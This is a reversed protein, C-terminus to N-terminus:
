PFCSFWAWVSRGTIIRKSTYMDDDHFAMVGRLLNNHIKIQPLCSQHALPIFIFDFGGFGCCVDWFHRHRSQLERDEHARSLPLNLVADMHFIPLRHIVWMALACCNVPTWVWTYQLHIEPYTTSNVPHSTGRCLNCWTLGAWDPKRYLRTSRRCPYYSIM